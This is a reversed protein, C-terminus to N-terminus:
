PPKENQNKVDNFYHVFIGRCTNSFAKNAKRAVV